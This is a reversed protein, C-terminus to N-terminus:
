EGTNYEYTILNNEFLYETPKWATMSNTSANYDSSLVLWIKAGKPHLYYNADAPDPLDMELDVSGALHINGGGNSTGSSILAGPHNGPWPDGYYILSYETNRELGHGNFDFVFTPGTLEHKMKGWAGGDIVSWDSPNKEYLYLNAQNSKGHPGKAAMATGAIAVSMFVTAIVLLGIAKKM